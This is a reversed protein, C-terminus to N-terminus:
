LSNLFALLIDRDQKKLGAFAQQSSKAEGGHWMVAQELTAARGDHLYGADPNLIKSLGTGWLPPTRWEEAKAQFMATNGALGTGMDHLLFDSYPNVKIGKDTQYDNRHCNECGLSTFLQRGLPNVAKAERPTRLHTLYDSIALLRQMPVDPGASRYAELCAPQQATCNEENFWPTTLGMDNILADATQEIVSAKTAKWGYRGAKLESYQVSWVRNVRGSIGDGDRDNEDQLQIIQQEPIQEILGLGILPPARLPNISTLPSLPGYNLNTIKFEPKFLSVTSGDQYSVQQQVLNVEVRGEFPVDNNGNISLQGGYVPDPIFGTHPDVTSISASSQALKIVISREVSGQGIVAVGGGNNQHCSVCSNANFLPGLGDRATTAAPAEVWPITFFSRGLVFQDSAEDSLDAYPHSLATKTRDHIFVKVSVDASVSGLPLTLLLFNILTFIIRM